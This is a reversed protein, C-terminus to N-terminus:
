RRVAELLAALAQPPNVANAVAGIVAIGHAGQSLLEPVHKLTIGGIAIVPIGSFASVASPGLPAPLGEKTSTQYCPGVGVYDAEAPVDAVSRATAGVIKSPGLLRRAQAAPLDEEGVHVGDADVALAIHVRDNILLPLGLAKIAIAHEFALRDTWSDAPRYQIVLDPTAVPLLSRVQAVPDAGPRSDTILHVRGLM